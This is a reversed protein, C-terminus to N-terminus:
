VLDVYKQHHVKERMLIENHKKKIIDRADDRRDVKKKNNYAEDVKSKMDTIGGANGRLFAAEKKLGKQEVTAKMVKDFAKDGKKKDMLNEQELEKAQAKVIMIMDRVDLVKQEKGSDETNKQILDRTGEIM